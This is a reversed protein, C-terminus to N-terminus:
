GTLLSLSSQRMGMLTKQVAAGAELSIALMKFKVVESAVDTEALRSHSAMVNEQRVSLEQHAGELRNSQAGLNAQASGVSELAADIDALAAQAGAQTSIDVGDLGLGTSSADTLASAVDIPQSGDGTEIAVSSASGDLLAVGNFNTGAATQNIGERLQNVEQQLAARNDDSLTGNSAQIALERMRQLSGTTSELAGGAVGLMSLGEQVNRQGQQLGRMEANMKNAISLGAADDANLKFGSSLRAASKGLEASLRNLQNANSIAGVGSVGGYSVM